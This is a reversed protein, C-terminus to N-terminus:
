ATPRRRWMFTVDYELVTDGEQKKILNRFTVIGGEKWTKSERKEIIEIEDHIVDGVYVPNPLKYSGGLHAIIVKQLPISQYLFGGTMTITGLGHLIRGKFGQEQAFKDNMHIEYFDGGLGAYSVIDADTVVRSQSTWKEGVELEEYYKGIISGQTMLLDEEVGNPPKRLVTEKFGGRGESTTSSKGTAKGRV